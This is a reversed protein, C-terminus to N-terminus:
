KRRRRMVEVHRGNYVFAELHEISEWVSMNTIVQPDEFVKFETANNNEDKLRWVFGKSQEALANVENLQEVFEKMIPDNIDSGIMKAINIQSLHWGTEM